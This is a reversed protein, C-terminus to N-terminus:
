REACCLTNEIISECNADENSEKQSKKSDFKAAEKEIMEKYEAPLKKIYKLIFKLENEDKRSREYEARADIVSGMVYSGPVEDMIKYVQRRFEEISLEENM